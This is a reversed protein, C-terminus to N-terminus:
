KLITGTKVYWGEIGNFRDAPTAVDEVNFGKIRKSLGYGYTPSFLFAAPANEALLRQFAIRKEIMAQPDSITRLEDLLKDADKHFFTTLNLGPDREQTSHWFPYLDGDNTLIEGYLFADYDRPKIVTKAIQTPDYTKLEVKAGVAEWNAKIIEAIALDDPQDVIALSLSLEDPGKKRIGSEQKTWGAAELAANAATADFEPQLKGAHGPLAPAFPGDVVQGAGHFIDNVIRARDIAGTLARRVEPTRLVARKGNFFVATYQPLQLDVVRVQRLENRLGHPVVSISEVSKGALADNALLQDLFLKFTIQDLYPAVGHYRENRKLRYEKIFGSSDRRLQDFVFPGAAIPKINYEILPFNPPPVDGWLHAPLIGTTLLGLFAASPQTLTFRVTRDDVREVTVNRFQTRLPSKYLPDQIIQYTILVDDADIPEGDSWVLEPRLIVTYVKGDASREFSEALDPAIESSATRKLLGAYLLRILDRDVDTAGGIVPNIYQPTGTLAEVIEGGPRPEQVTHRAYARVGLFFVSVIVIGTLARLLFREAPSLLRSLYRFQRITPLRSPKLTFVLDRETKAATDNTTATPHRRRRRFINRLARLPLRM